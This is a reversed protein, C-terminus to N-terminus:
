GAFLSVCRFWSFGSFRFWSDTSKADVQADQLSFLDCCGFPSSFEKIVGVQFGRFWGLFGVCCVVFMHFFM